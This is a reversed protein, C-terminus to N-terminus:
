IHKLVQQNISNIFFDHTTILRAQEVIDAYIEPLANKIDVIPRDINELNYNWVKSIKPKEPPEIFLNYEDPLYRNAVLLNDEEYIKIIKKREELSILHVKHINKGNSESVSSRNTSNTLFHAIRSKKNYSIPLSNIYIQFSLDQTSLSQNIDENIYVYNDTNRNLITNQFDICIDGQVFRSREYPKVIINEKGFVEEWPKIIKSYFLIYRSKDIKETVCNKIDQICHSEIFQDQRRLYVIIKINFDIPILNKLTAISEKKINFLGESSIIYSYKKDSINLDDYEDKISKLDSPFFPEKKGAQKHLAFALYHHTNEFKTPPFIIKQSKLQARNKEWFLQLASTGTKPSGIHIYVTNLM